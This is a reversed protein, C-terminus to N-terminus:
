ISKILKNIVETNRLTFNSIKTLEQIVVVGSDTRETRLKEMWWGGWKRYWRGGDALLVNYLLINLVAKEM